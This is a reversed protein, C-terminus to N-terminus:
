RFACIMGAWLSEVQHGQDDLLGSVGGVQFEQGLTSQEIPTSGLASRPSGIAIGGATHLAPEAGRLFWGVLRDNQFSLRLGHYDVFDMPGEGCEDNHGTDTSAGFAAAAATTAAARATGFTIDPTIGNGTLIHAQYAAPAAGNGAPAAVNETAAMNDVAATGSANNSAADQRTCATLVLGAAVISYTFRM